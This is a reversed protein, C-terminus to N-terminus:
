RSAARGAALKGREDGAEAYFRKQLMRISAGLEQVQSLIREPPETLDLSVVELWKGLIAVHHV